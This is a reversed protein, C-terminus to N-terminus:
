PGHLVFQGRVLLAPDLNLVANPNKKPVSYPSYNSM